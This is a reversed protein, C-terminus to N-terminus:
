LWLWAADADPGCAVQQERLAVTEFGGRDSVWREPATRLLCVLPGLGGQAPVGPLQRGLSELAWVMLRRVQPARQTVVAHELAPLTFGRPREAPLDLRPLGAGFAARRLWERAILSGVPPRPDRTAAHVLDDVLDPVERPDARSLGSAAAALAFPDPTPSSVALSLAREAVADVFDSELHNSGQTALWLQAPALTRPDLRSLRAVRARLDDTPLPAGYVDLRLPGGAEHVVVRHVGAPVTIETALDDRETPLATDIGADPRELTITDGAEVVLDPLWGPLGAAVQAWSGLPEARWRSTRAAASGAPGIALSRRGDDGEVVEADGQLQRFELVHAEEPLWLVARAHSGAGWLWPTPSEPPADLSLLPPAVRQAAAPQDITIHWLAGWAHRVRLEGADSAWVLELGDDDRASHVLTWPAPPALTVTGVPVGGASCVELRGDGLDRVLFDDWAIDDSM